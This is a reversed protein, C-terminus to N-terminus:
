FSAVFHVVIGVVALPAGQGSPLKLLSPVVQVSQEAAQLVHEPGVDLSQV